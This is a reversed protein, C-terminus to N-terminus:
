DPRIRSKLVQHLANAKRPLKAVGSGEEASV